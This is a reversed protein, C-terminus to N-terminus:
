RRRWVVVERELRVGFRDLVRREVTEMLEIVDRASGNVDPVLFNGHRESVCASRVRLGKLGARDILLGASVRDGARAIEVGDDGVLDHTVTPNKFCCGASRAAMPQSQKKYEMVRKVQTRLGAADGPRLRLEVRTIVWGHLGSRRYGFDIEARELTRRHGDPDFGHVRAVADAIQGFAGGANMVVAGGVTAPVGALGELGGLGRRVTEAILKPLNAGAAAAVAGGPDMAVEGFGGMALVVGDVGDDDVLLNAGDGLVRPSPDIELGRCVDEETRVEIMSDAGGGVGFWTPIPAHTRVPRRVAVSM